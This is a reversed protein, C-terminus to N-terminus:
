VEVSGSLIIYFSDGPDNERCIVEDAKLTRRYGEEIIHRLEIDSLHEFYSVHRLLERLTSAGSYKSVAKSIEFQADKAVTLTSSHISDHPTSGNKVGVAQLQHILSSLAFLSHSDAIARTDNNNRDSLGREQFEAEVLFYLASKISNVEAPKNIWVLLAFNLSDGEIGKLHVKPSPSSLVRPEKRAVSLLAETVVLSDHGRPVAIPIEICSETAQYSWNVVNRTMINNNPLVVATGQPTRIITSRISINEVTGALDEVEIFDGVRIPQELLLTVGGALDSALGQLGFALCFGIAGLVVALTELNIGVNQLVVLLGVTIIIYNVISSLAERTGLALGFRNLIRNKFVKKIARAILFVIVSQVVLNTIFSLSIKISGLEFLKATFLHYLRELLHKVEATTWYKSLEMTSNLM